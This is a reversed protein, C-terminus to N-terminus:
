PKFRPTASDLPIFAIIVNDDEDAIEVIRRSVANNWDPDTAVQSFDYAQAWTIADSTDAAELDVAAYHTVDEASLAAYNNM